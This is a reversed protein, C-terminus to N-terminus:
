KNFKIDTMRKQELQEMSDKGIKDPSYTDPPTDITINDNITLYTHQQRMGGNGKTSLEDSNQDLFSYYDSTVGYCGGGGLSFALPEDNNQTAIKQSAIQKPELYSAIEEGFLVRHGNNLLLLAPVKNITPPLLIEKGNELQIYISNNDKKIRKDICLFHMDNKVSSSSLKQLLTKSNNCYNSYYLICSM